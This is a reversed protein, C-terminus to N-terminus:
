FQYTLRLTFEDAFDITSLLTDNPNSNGLAGNIYTYFGDVQWERNPKWRLGPQVLVSGRPDYLMAFSARYVDQPFPQQAAIVVYNAGGSVGTAQATETGGYGSLLRGFLDDKDRHMYQFVFYTAPFADTFRYYKEMVLATINTNFKPYDRSLSPNTFTRGLTLSHELNIILQDFVGGPAGEVVYSGGLAIVTEKFYERAIHGRLSGGAAIFFTNLENYAEQYNGAPSAYVESTRPFETISANLGDVGSLRVQGAYNFWENASYVGGPAVEFPTDALVSGSTKGQGMLSLEVRCAITSDTLPNACPLNRNVGSKTWRFVGDPNYRETAMAQFGWQGYNGKFRLGYNLKEDYGGSSYLDHVTFGVPIVNYQTNPNGFITPQFKQVFADMLLEDSFQWSIRAGLAPVRKDSYEEQANDLVLHRRLDLGDVVDFVRFFLAQGWAIQQNGVRLNLPGNTYDLVLTPFYIQYNKGTWELPNPKKGGEVIYDFYSPTGQYLRPDGGRIGGGGTTITNQVTRADFDDYLAPDYIGRLRAILSLDQSFRITTELETRLIQYNLTNDIRDFPQGTLSGDQNASFTGRLGPTAADGALAVPFAQSTWTPVAANLPLANCIAGLAAQNAVGTCVAGAFGPPVYAQRPQPRGNFTNSLQNAPNDRHSTSVATETRFFGGYSFDMNAFSLSPLTFLSEFFGPQAEKEKSAPPEVAITEYPAAAPAALTSPPTTNDAAVPAADATTPAAEVPAPTADASTPVDQASVVGIWAQLLGVALLGLIARISKM